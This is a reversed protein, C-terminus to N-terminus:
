AAAGLKKELLKAYGQMTTPRRDRVKTKPYPKGTVLNIARNRSPQPYRRPGLTSSTGFPRLVYTGPTFGRGIDFNDVQAQASPPNKYRLATKGFVLYVTTKTIIPATCTLGEFGPENTTAGITSLAIACYCPHLPKAAASQEPTVVLTLPKTADKVKTVWPHDKRVMALAKKAVTTKKIKNMIIREHTKRQSEDELWDLFGGKQCVGTGVTNGDLKIARIM